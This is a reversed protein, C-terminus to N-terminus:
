TGPSPGAHACAHCLTTTPVAELRAPSIAEGCRLCVGYDGAEIRALAATIAGLEVRSAHDLDALVEDGEEEIARDDDDRSRVTDRDEAIQALRQVLEDRRATLRAAQATLADHSLM